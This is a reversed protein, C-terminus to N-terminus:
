KCIKPTLSNWFCLIGDILSQLDRPKYQYRLYYKLSVWVNEIPNLDPSEPPTKWWNINKEAFFDQTHHACHKPDNDQQFLM